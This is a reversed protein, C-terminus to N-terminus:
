KEGYLVENIYNLIDREANTGSSLASEIESDSLKDSQRLISIAKDISSNEGDSGSKCQLGWLDGCTLM